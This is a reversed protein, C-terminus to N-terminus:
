EEKYEYIWKYEYPNHYLHGKRKVTKFWVKVVAGDSYRRVVVPYWAFWLHWCKKAQEKYELTHTTLWKM